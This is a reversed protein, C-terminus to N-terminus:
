LYALLSRKSLETIISSCDNLSAYIYIPLEFSKLSLPLKYNLKGLNKIFPTVIHHVRIYKNLMALLSNWRTPCDLELQLEHGLGAKIKEQLPDNLTPSRRAKKVIYRVKDIVPKFEGKLERMKTKLRTSARGCRSALSYAPSPVLTIDANVREEEDSEGFDTDAASRESDSDLNDDDSREDAESDEGDFEFENEVTGVCSSEKKKEYLIDAISLHVAHALCVQHTPGVIRGLKIM